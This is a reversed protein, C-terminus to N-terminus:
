RAQLRKHQGLSPVQVRTHNREQYLRFRFWCVCCMSMPTICRQMKVRLVGWPLLGWDKWEWVQRTHERGMILAVLIDMISM